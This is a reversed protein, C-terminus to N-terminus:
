YTIAVVNVSCFSKEKSLCEKGKLKKYSTAKCTTLIDIRDVQPTLDKIKLIMGGGNKFIEVKKDDFPLYIPM